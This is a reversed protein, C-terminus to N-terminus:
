FSLALGLGNQSAQFNLTLKEKTACQNNFIEHAHNTRHYGVWLLPVAAGGLLAGGASACGVSAHQLDWYTDKDYNHSIGGLTWGTILMAGSLALIPWGIKQLIKGNRYQLYAKPCNNQMFKEMAKVDMQTNGYSYASYGYVKREERTHKVLLIKNIENDTQAVTIDEKIPAEQATPTAVHFLNSALAACGEQIKIAEVGMMQNESMVVRATEVDLVKAAIFMNKADIVVAEAVLIYKAGTMEGLRKIQDESVMGTRQFNQEGVIADIDSRDYAEYGTANTIAKALNSRLILKTAYSVKNERDVPELIAVRMTEASAIAASLLLLLTFIKTKM